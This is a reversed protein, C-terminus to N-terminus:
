DQPPKLPQKSDNLAIILMETGQAGTISAAVLASTVRPPPEQTKGCRGFLPLGIVLRSLADFPTRM